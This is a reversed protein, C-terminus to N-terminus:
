ICGFRPCVCSPILIHLKLRYIMMKWVLVGSGSRTFMTNTHTCLFATPPILWLLLLMSSLPSLSHTISVSLFPLSSSLLLTDTWIECSGNYSQCLGTSLGTEGMPSYLGLLMCHPAVSRCGWLFSRWHRHAVRIMSYRLPRISKQPTSLPGPVTPCGTPLFSVFWMTVLTVGTWCLPTPWSLGRNYTGNTCQREGSVRGTNM